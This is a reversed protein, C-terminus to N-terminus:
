ANEDLEDLVFNARVFKVVDDLDSLPIEPLEDDPQYGIIRLTDAMQLIDAKADRITELISAKSMFAADIPVVQAWWKASRKM